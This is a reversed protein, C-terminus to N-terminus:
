LDARVGIQSADEDRLAILAGRVLYASPDGLPSVGTKEIVTGETFGLDNLRRKIGSENNMEYIVASAGKPLEHLRMERYLYSRRGFLTTMTM